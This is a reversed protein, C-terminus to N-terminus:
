RAMVMQAPDTGPHTRGAGACRGVVWCNFDVTHSHGPLQGKPREQSYLEARSPALVYALNDLARSRNQM